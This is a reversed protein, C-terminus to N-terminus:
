SCQRRSCECRCSWSVNGYM